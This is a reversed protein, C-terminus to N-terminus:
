RATIWGGSPTSDFINGDKDIISIHTTDKVIGAPITTMGAAPARSRRRRRHERDLYPWTKVKSDFPLPDGAM